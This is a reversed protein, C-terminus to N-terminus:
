KKIFEWLLGGISSFFGALLFIQVGFNYISEHVISDSMVVWYILLMAVASGFLGTLLGHIVGTKQAFRAGFYGPVIWACCLLIYGVPTQFLSVGIYNGMLTVISVLVIFILAGKVVALPKIM